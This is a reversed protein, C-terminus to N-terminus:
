LWVDKHLPSHRKCQTCWFMHIYLQPFNTPFSVFPINKSPSFNGDPLSVIIQSMLCTPGSVSCGYSLLAKTDNLEPSRARGGQPWSQRVEEGHLAVSIDAWTSDWDRKPSGSAYISSLSSTILLLIQRASCGNIVNIGTNRIRIRM